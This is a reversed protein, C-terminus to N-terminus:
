KNAFGMLLWKSVTDSWSTKHKCQLLQLMGLLLKKLLLKPSDLTVDTYQLHSTENEVLELMELM